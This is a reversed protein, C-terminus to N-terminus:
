PRMRFWAKVEPRIWFILLPISFGVTCGTMGICILVIHYIWAWPRRPLFFAAATLLLLVGGMGTMIAAFAVPPMGLEEPDIEFVLPVIGAGASFLFLLVLVALYARYWAIVGPRNEPLPSADPLPAPSSPMTDM